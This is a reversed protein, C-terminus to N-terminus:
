KWAFQDSNITTKVEAPLSSDEQTSQHKEIRALAIAVGAFCWYVMPIQFVSSTTFITVLIGILTAFYARCYLALTPDHRRASRMAKRLALLACAFVGLFLVLGVFGSKLGVQLYSNVIDIIGQGQRLAQLKPHQLYESSGFLPSEMMVEGAADLLRQRYSITDGANDGIFPLLGLIKQGYPTALSMLGAILSVSGLQAMRLTTKPSILVFVAITVVVGVWPGRSLSVLVGAMLLAFGASKYLLSFRENMFALGVGVGTMAVYGWAIPDFVSAYARLLGERITYTFPLQGFWGTTVSTYFHWSRIFEPISIASLILVPLLYAGSMIRIDSLSKPYRSFVYYFPALVIFEEIMTRLIHTFTPGRLCLVIQLVLWLLFFLDAGGGVRSLKKMHTAAFMAPMLFLLTYATQPTVDVFKNIGAFGPIAAGIAPVSFLLLFFVSPKVPEAWSLALAGMGALLIFLWYNPILFVCVTVAIWVNRWMDYRKGSVLEAFPKRFFFLVAASVIFVVIFAKLHSSM